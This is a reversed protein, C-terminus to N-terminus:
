KSSSFILPTITYKLFSQMQGFNENSIPKSWDIAAFFSFESKELCTEALILLVIKSLIKVIIAIPSLICFFCIQGGVNERYTVNGCRKHRVNTFSFSLEGLCPLKFKENSLNWFCFLRILIM